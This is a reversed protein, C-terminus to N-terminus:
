KHADMMGGWNIEIPLRVIAIHHSIVNVVLQDFAM